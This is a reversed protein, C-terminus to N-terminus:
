DMSLQKIQERAIIAFESEPYEDLLQYFHIIANNKQNLAIFSMGIKLKADDVKDSDKFSYVKEFESIARIFEMKSYYCEALWYHSNDALLNTPDDAIM